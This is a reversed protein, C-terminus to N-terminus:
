SCLALEFSADQGASRLRGEPDPKMFRISVLLRHGSIEPVLADDAMRVRLLHYLKGPPLSQQYTGGPAVMRQPTGSDRLLGLLVHLAEALPTLSAMWGQLDSQRSAPDHQQWAYYAPLDFECTGGPINIRSRISMLWDNASLTQGAKGQM